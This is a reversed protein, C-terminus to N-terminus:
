SFFCCFFLLLLYVFLCFGFKLFFKKQNTTTPPILLQITIQVKGHQLCSENGAQMKHQEHISYKNWYAGLKSNAGVEFLHGDWLCFFNILAWGRIFAWGRRRGILSLYASVGVVGM